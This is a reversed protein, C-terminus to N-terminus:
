RKPLVVRFGYIEYGFCADTYCPIEYYRCAVRCSNASSNWCGGRLVKYEGTEPGRPNEKPSEKYYAASYYDNCWEWVNGTMDHLKWPNARKRAVPRTKDGSNENYWAYTNLTRADNGFFYRTNTGARAAYEWEAETPLRYGSAEFNCTWSTIDYAPELGEELSRANCYRVADSWPIQEVPHQPHVFKAPNDGMLREYEAQTVPTVDIFFPSVYVEHEAEDDKGKNDGMVFTGGALEVMAVGGKTKIEPALETECGPLLTVVMLVAICLLFIKKSTRM